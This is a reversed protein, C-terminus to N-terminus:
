FISHVTSASQKPNGKDKSLGKMSLCRLLTYNSFECYAVIFILFFFVEEFSYRGKIPDFKDEVVIEGVIVSPMYLATILSDFYKCTKNM